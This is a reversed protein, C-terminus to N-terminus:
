PGPSARESATPASLWNGREGVLYPAYARLHIQQLGSVAAFPILYANLEGDVVFFLEIQRHRLRTPRRTPQQVATRRVHRGGSLDDDQGPRARIRDRCPRCPRLPVTGAALAGRCWPAHVLSRGPRIRRHAPAPSRAGTDGMRGSPGAAHVSSRHRHRTAERARALHQHGHWQEVFTRALRRCRDLQTRRVCCGPAGSRVLTTSRHFPFPRYRTRSGPTPDRAAHRRVTGAPRARADRRAM